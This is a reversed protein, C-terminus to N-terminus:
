GGAAPAVSSPPMVAREVGIGGEKCVAAGEHASAGTSAAGGQLWVARLLYPIDGRTAAVTAAAGSACPEGGCMRRQTTHQPTTASVRESQARRYLPAPEQVNAALLLNGTTGNLLARGRGQKQEKTLAPENTTTATQRAARVRQM